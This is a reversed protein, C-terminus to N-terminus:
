LIGSLPIPALCSYIPGERTLQSKMLNVSEVKFEGGNFDTKAIFQGISQRESASAEDRIRAITLHATFPRSEPVFGLNKLEEDIRKQLQVLKDLEGSIGAWVIQIRQPNPFVGLGSVALRFPTIGLIANEMTHTIDTISDISINGLFKLTLHISVPAVWKVRYKESKIRNELEELSDKVKQPLEIAIFTRVEEM